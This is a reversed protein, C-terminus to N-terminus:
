IKYAEGPCCDGGYCNNPTLETGNGNCQLGGFLPFPNDCTRVRTNKCEFNCSSWSSWDSWSGDIPIKSSFLM